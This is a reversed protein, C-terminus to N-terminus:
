YVYGTEAAVTLTSGGAISISQASSPRGQGDFTFSTVSLTVGSPAAYVITAPASGAGLAAVPSACGADYCVSVSGATTVVFITRRQAIAIRRAESIASKVIESYAAADFTSRSFFSIAGVSLIAAIVLVAVLETLTFGAQGGRFRLPFPTATGEPTRGAPGNAV